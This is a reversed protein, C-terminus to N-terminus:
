ARRSGQHYIGFYSLGVLSSAWLVLGIVAALGRTLRPLLLVPALWLSSLIFADRFGAFGTTGSFLLLAQTVGSFYWFFLLLWGLGAWDM